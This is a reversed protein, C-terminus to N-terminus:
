KTGPVIGGNDMVTEFMSPNSNFLGLLNKPDSVDLRVRVVNVKSSIETIFDRTKRSKDEVEKMHGSLLGADKAADPLYGATIESDAAIQKMSAEWKASQEQIAAVEMNISEVDALIAQEPTTEDVAGAAGGFDPHVGRTPVLRGGGMGGGYDGPQLRRPDSIGAIAMVQEVSLGSAAAIGSPTDGPRVTFGGMGGMTYGYGTAGLLDPNRGALMADRIETELNNLATVLAGDGFQHAIDALLPLIDDRYMLSVDTQAGSNLDLADQFQQLQEDTFLGSDRLAGLAGGTLDGILPNRVGQGFAQALTMNEFAAAAREAEDAIASVSDRMNEASQLDDNNIIGDAHAQQIGAFVLEFEARASQVRRLQEDSMFEPLQSHGGTSGIVSQFSRFILDGQALRAANAANMANYEAQLRAREAELQARSEAFDPRMDPRPFRGSRTPPEIVGPLNTYASFDDRGGLLPNVFDTMFSSPPSIVTPTPPNELRNYLTDVVEVLQAGAEIGSAFFEAVDQGANEIRTQLRGFSTEAATAAGGLRERTQEGIELTARAFAQSADMGAQVYENRLERVAAASIGINDLMEISQNRLARGLAEVGEEGGLQFGLTILKGAEEADAALGTMMLSTADRMLTFDDIVGGTQARLRLLADEGGGALAEFRAEVFGIQRGMENMQGIFQIGAGLTVAGLANRVATEMGSAATANRRTAQEAQGMERQYRGLVGSFNDTASIRVTVDRAM